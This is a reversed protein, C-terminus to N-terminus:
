CTPQCQQYRHLTVMNAAYNQYQHSLLHIMQFLHSLNKVSRILKTLWGCYLKHYDSDQVVLREALSQAPINYSPIQSPITLDM